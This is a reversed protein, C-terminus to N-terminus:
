IALQVNNRPGIIRSVKLCLALEANIGIRIGIFGRHNLLVHIVNFQSSLRLHHILYLALHLALGADGEDGAFEDLWVGDFGYRVQLDDL